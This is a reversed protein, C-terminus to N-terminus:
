DGFKVEGITALAKADREEREEEGSAEAAALWQQQLSLTSIPPLGTPVRGLRNPREFQPFGQPSRAAAARARALKVDVEVITKQSEAAGPAAGPAAVVAEAPAAQASVPKRSSHAVILNHAVMTAM